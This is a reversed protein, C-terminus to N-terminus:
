ELKYSCSAKNFDYDSFQNLDRFDKTTENRRELFVGVCLKLNRRWRRNVYKKFLVVYAYQSHAYSGLLQIETM